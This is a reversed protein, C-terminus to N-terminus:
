EFSNLDVIESFSAVGRLSLEVWGPPQPEEEWGAGGAAGLAWLPLATSGGNLLLQAATADPRKDSGSRWKDSM